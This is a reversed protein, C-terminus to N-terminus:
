YTDSFNQVELRQSGKSKVAITSTEPFSLMEEMGSSSDVWYPGRLASMARGEIKAKIPISLRM